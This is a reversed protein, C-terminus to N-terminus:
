LPKLSTYDEKEIYQMIYIGRCECIRDNSDSYGELREFARIADSYKKEEFLDQAMGYRCDMIRASSDKYDGLARFIGIAEVYEEKEYLEVANNYKLTPVLLEIVLVVAIAIVPLTVAAAILLSKM